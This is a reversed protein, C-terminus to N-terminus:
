THLEHFLKWIFFFNNCCSTLFLVLPGGSAMHLDFYYVAKLLCGASHWRVFSPIFRIIDYDDFVIYCPSM